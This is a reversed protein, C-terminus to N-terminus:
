DKGGTKTSVKGSRLLCTLTLFSANSQRLFSLAVHCVCCSCPRQAATRQSQPHAKPPMSLLGNNFLAKPLQEAKITKQISYLYLQRKDQCRKEGY